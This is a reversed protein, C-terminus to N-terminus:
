PTKKSNIDNKIKLVGKLFWIPLPPLLFACLVVASAIYYGTPTYDLEVNVVTPGVLLILLSALLIGVVDVFLIFGLNEYYITKDKIKHEPLFTFMFSSLLGNIPYLIVTCVILSIAVMGKEGVYLYSTLQASFAILFSSFFLMLVFVWEKRYLAFIFPLGKDKSYEKPTPEIAKEEKKKIHGIYVVPYSAGEFATLFRSIDTENEKGDIYVAVPSFGELIERFRRAKEAQGESTSVDIDRLVKFSKTMLYSEKAQELTREEKLPYLIFFKGVGTVEVSLVMPHKISDNLMDRGGISYTGTSGELLELSFVRKYLDEHDYIVSVGNGFAIDDIGVKGENLSATFGKLVLAEGPVQIDLPNIDGKQRRYAAREKELRKDFSERQAPSLDKFYPEEEGDVVAIALEHGAERAILFLSNAGSAFPSEELFELEKPVLESKERVSFKM